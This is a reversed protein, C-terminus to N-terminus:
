FIPWAKIWVNVHKPGNRGSSIKSDSGYVIANVIVVNGLSKCFHIISESHLWKSGIAHLILKKLDIKLSKLNYIEIIWITYESRESPDNVVLLMGDIIIITM